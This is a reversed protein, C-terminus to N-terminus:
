EFRNSFYLVKKYSFSKITRAILFLVLSTGFVSKNAKDFRQQRKPMGFIKDFIGNELYIYFHETSGSVDHVSVNRNAKQLIRSYIRFYIIFEMFPIGLGVCKATLCKCKETEPADLM